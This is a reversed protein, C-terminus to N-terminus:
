AAKWWHETESEFPFTTLIVKDEETCQIARFLKEIQQIWEEVDLPDPGGKFKTPKLLLALIQRQRRPVNPEIQQQLVVTMGVLTERIHDMSSSEDPTPVEKCPPVQM